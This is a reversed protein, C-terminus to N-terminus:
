TLLYTRCVSLLPVPNVTPARYHNRFNLPEPLHVPVERVRNPTRRASASHITLSQVSGPGDSVEHRPTFSRPLDWARQVSLFTWAELTADPRGPPDLLGRRGASCAGSPEGEDFAGAGTAKSKDDGM